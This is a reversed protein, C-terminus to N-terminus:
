LKLINKKLSRVNSYCTVATVWVEADGCVRKCMM